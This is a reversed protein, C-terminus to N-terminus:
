AAKLLFGSDNDNVGVLGGADGDLTHLEEIGNMIKTIIKEKGVIPPPTGGGAVSWTTDSLDLTLIGFNESSLVGKLVTNTVNALEVRNLALQAAYQIFVESIEKGFAGVIMSPVTDPINTTLIKGFDNADDYFARIGTDGFVKTGEDIISYALAQRMISAYDGSDHDRGALTTSNNFEISGAFDKDYMVPWFYKAANKWDTVGGATVDAYLLIALTSMSHADLGDLFYFGPLEVDSGLDLPTMNTTQLYRLNSLFDDDFLADDGQAYYGRIGAINPNWPTESGYILTGLEYNPVILSLTYAAAASDEFSMNDFIVADQGYLDAVYGALGGGLSHGTLSVNLAPSNLDIGTGYVTEVIGKYFEIAMNGQPALDPIGGGLGYGYLTDAGIGQSRDGNLFDTGRYSIITEGSLSYAVGYFGIGIADAQGRTASIYAEGIQTNVVDSQGYDISSAYGRNYADMAFIAKYLDNTMETM